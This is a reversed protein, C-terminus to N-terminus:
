FEESRSFNQDIVLYSENFISNEWILRDRFVRYTECIYLKILYEKDVLDNLDAMLMGQVVKSLDRM